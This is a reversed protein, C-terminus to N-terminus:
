KLQYEWLKIGNSYEWASEGAESQFRTIVSGGFNRAFADNCDKSTCITGVQLNTYLVVTWTKGPFEHFIKGFTRLLLGGGSVSNVIDVFSQLEIVAFIM